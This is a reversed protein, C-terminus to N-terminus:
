TVALTVGCSYLSIFVANAERSGDRAVNRNRQSRRLPANITGPM